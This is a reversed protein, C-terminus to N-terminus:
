ANARLRRELLSQRRTVAGNAAQLLEEMSVPKELLLYGGLTLIARRAGEVDLLGIVEGRKFMPGGLVIVAATPDEERIDQLLEIGSIDPLNFESVVLVPEGERYREVAERGDVALLCDYGAGRFLDAFVNRIPPNSTVILVVNRPEM